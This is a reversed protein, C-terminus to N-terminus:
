VDLLPSAYGLTCVVTYRPHKFLDYPGKIECRGIAHCILLALICLSLLACLSHVTMRFRVGMLVGFAISIVTQSVAVRDIHPHRASDTTFVSLLM